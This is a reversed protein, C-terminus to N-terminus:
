RLTKEECARHRGILEQLDKQIPLAHATFTRQHVLDFARNLDAFCQTAARGMRIMQIGKALRILLGAEM